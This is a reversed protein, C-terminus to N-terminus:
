AEMKLMRIESRIEDIVEFFYNKAMERVDIGRIVVRSAHYWPCGWPCDTIIDREGLKYMEWLEYFVEVFVDRQEETLQDAHIGAAANIVNLADPLFTQKEIIM